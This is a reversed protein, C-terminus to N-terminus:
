YNKPNSAAYSVIGDPALQQKRSSSIECEIRLGPQKLVTTILQYRGICDFEIIYLFIIQLMIKVSM